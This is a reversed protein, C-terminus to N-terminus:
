PKSDKKVQKLHARMAARAAEPDRRLLADLIKKHHMQGRAAGGHRFTNKRQERLLDVIPDILTPILPNQTAQALALHFQLDAEVFADANNLTTDMTAVAQRITELQAKTARKAALAAIEPELIERAEALDRAGEGAGIKIMLGLSHRVARATGDTVFTGRGQYGQVLGKERLAKVAERVVTRSVHFQEALDRENPLRDGHRLKGNLIQQEIQAVIQEYLRATQIPQYENM